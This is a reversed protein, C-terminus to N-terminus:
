ETYFVSKGKENGHSLDCQITQFLFNTGREYLIVSSFYSITLICKGTVFVPTYAKSKQYFISQTRTKLLRINQLLPKKNKKAGHRVLFVKIDTGM